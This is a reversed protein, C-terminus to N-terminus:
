VRQFRVGVRRPNPLGSAVREAALEAQVDARYTDRLVLLDKIPTRKLSRGEISYEEQDKSARGEIVAEIADLVIRAHSRGDYGQVATTPNQIVTTNGNGVSIRMGIKEIWRAWGYEGATWTATTSSGVQVRYDEGDTAATITIPAQVPSTFRPILQYKLTWGDTAPYGSVETSFDLTDGAVLKDEMMM